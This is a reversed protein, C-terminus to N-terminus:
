IVIHLQGHSVMNELFQLSELVGHPMRSDQLLLDVISGPQCHINSLKYLDLFVVLCELIMSCFTSVPVHRVFTDVFQLSGLVGHSM